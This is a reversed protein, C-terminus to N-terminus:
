EPGRSQRVLRRRFGFKNRILSKPPVLRKKDQIGSALKEPDGDNESNRKRRGNINGGAKRKFSYRAM